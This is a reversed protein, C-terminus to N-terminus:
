PHKEKLVGILQLFTKIGVFTLGCGIIILTLYFLGLFIYHDANWEWDFCFPFM